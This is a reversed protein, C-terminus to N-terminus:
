EDTLIAEYLKGQTYDFLYVGPKPDVSSACATAPLTFLICEAGYRKDKYYDIAGSLSKACPKEEVKIIKGNIKTIFDAAYSGQGLYLVDREGSAENAEFTLIKNDFNGKTVIDYDFFGKKTKLWERMKPLNLEQLKWVRKMIDNTRDIEDFFVRLRDLCHYAKQLSEKNDRRPKGRDFLYLSFADVGTVVKSTKNTFDEATLVVPLGYTLAVKYCYRTLAAKQEKVSKALQTDVQGSKRIQELKVQAHACTWYLQEIDPVTEALHQPLGDFLLFNPKVLYDYAMDYIINKQQATNM